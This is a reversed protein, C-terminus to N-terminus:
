RVTARRSEMESHDEPGGPRSQRRRFSVRGPSTSRRSGALKRENELVGASLFPCFGPLGSAASGLKADFRV